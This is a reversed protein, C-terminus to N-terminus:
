YVLAWNLKVSWMSESSDEPGFVPNVVGERTAFKSFRTDLGLVHRDDLPLNAGFSLHWGSGPAGTYDAETRYYKHFWYGGGVGVYPRVATKWKFHRTLDVTFPVAVETAHDFHGLLDHNVSAGLSWNRNLMRDYSLGYGALGDGAGKARSKAYGAGFSIWNARKAWVGDIARQEEYSKEAPKPPKPPKPTKPKAPKPAASTAAPAAPRADAALVASAATLAFSACAALAVLGLRLSRNSKPM